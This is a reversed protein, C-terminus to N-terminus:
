KEMEKFCISSSTKRASAKIKKPPLEAENAMRLLKKYDSGLIRKSYAMVAGKEKDYPENHAKVVTKTGDNWIVITAPPNHIIKEPMVYRTQAQVFKLIPNKYVEDTFLEWEYLRKCFSESM